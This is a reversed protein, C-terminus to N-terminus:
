LFYSKMLRRQRETCGNDLIKRLDQSWYINTNAYQLHCPGSCTYDIRGTVLIFGDEVIFLGFPVEDIDICENSSLHGLWFEEAVRSTDLFIPILNKGKIKEKIFDRSVMEPPTIALYWEVEFESDEIVQELIQLCNRQKRTLPGIDSHLLTTMGLKKVRENVRECQLFLERDGKWEERSFKDKLEQPLFEWYIPFEVGLLYFIIWIDRALCRIKYIEKKDNANRELVLLQEYDEKTCTQTKVRKSLEM